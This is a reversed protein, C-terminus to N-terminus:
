RNGRRRKREKLMRAADHLAVTRGSEIDNESRRIAAVAKPDSALELSELQMTLEELMKRLQVVYDRAVITVDTQKPQHIVVPQGSRVEKLIRSFQQRAETASLIKEVVAVPM